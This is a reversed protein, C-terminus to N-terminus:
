EGSRLWDILAAQADPQWWAQLRWWSFVERHGKLRNCRLCAPVLNHRVTLGGRARPQIHDLSQAPADCYACRHQWAAFISQRFSLRAQKATVLETGDIRAQM